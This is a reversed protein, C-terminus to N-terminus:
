IKAFEGVIFEIDTVLSQVGILKQKDAASTRFFYPTMRFCADIDHEGTITVRDGFRRSSLLRFTRVDPFKEDNLYPTDYLLSKLGWLHRAAPIVIFLRGDPRLVRAIEEEGLPAFLLTACDVSGDAIPIDSLGAVFCSCGGRKAALRVMERSIDFGYADVGDIAGFASTYWGEGCCVDLLVAPARRRIMDCLGDRLVSYYGRDLFDRRARAMSKDDGILDGSRSARLLNVYGEKARDFSHGNACRATKDDFALPKKCVPCIIIDNM